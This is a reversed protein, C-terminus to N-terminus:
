VTKKLDAILFILDQRYPDDKKLEKLKKMMNYRLTEDYKFNFKTMVRKKSMEIIEERTKGRLREFLSLQMDKELNNKKEDVKKQEEIEYSKIFKSKKSKENEQNNISEDINKYTKKNLLIKKEEEEEQSQPAFINIENTNDKEFYETVKLRMEKMEEEITKNNNFNFEINNKEITKRLYVYNKLIEGSDIFLDPRNILKGKYKMEFLLRTILANDVKGYGLEFFHGSDGKKKKSTLIYENNDSPNFESVHKLEILENNKNIIKKPSQKKTETLGYKKHGMAEHILNLVINMAIDNLIEENFLGDYSYNYDINKINKINKYNKLLHFENIIIGQFEPITFAIEDNEIYCFILIKPLIDKLHSKIMKLNTLDYTYVMEKNYYGYGGDLFLLKEYITSNENIGEIYKDFFTFVKDLISNKVKEQVIYCKINLSILEEISGLNDNIYFLANLARIKEYMPINNNDKFNEFIEGIKEIFCQTITRKSIFDNQYEFFYMCKFFNFFFKTDLFKHSDFLESLYENTKHFNNFDYDILDNYKQVIAELNKPYDKDNCFFLNDLETAFDEYRGKNNELFEINCEERPEFPKVIFKKTKLDIESIQYFSSFKDCNGFIIESLDYLEKNFYLVTQAYNILVLSKKDKNEISNFEIFEKNGIGSIRINEINRLIIEYSKPSFGDLQVYAKNKSYYVNFEYEKYENSDKLFLQIKVQSKDKGYKFESDPIPITDKETKIRKPKEFFPFKFRDILKQAYFFFFLDISASM